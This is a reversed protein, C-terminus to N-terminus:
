RFLNESSIYHSSARTVKDIVGSISPFASSLLCFLATDTSVFFDYYRRENELRPWLGFWCWALVAIAGPFSGRYENFHLVEIAYDTHSPWPTSPWYNSDQVIVSLQDDGYYKPRNQPGVLKRNLPYRTQIGPPLASPLSTSLEGGELFLKLFSHFYIEM